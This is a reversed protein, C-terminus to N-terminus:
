IGNVINRSAGWIPHLIEEMPRTGNPQLEGFIVDPDLLTPVVSLAMWNLVVFVELVKTFFKQATTPLSAGGTVQQNQAHAQPIGFTERFLMAREEVTMQWTKETVGRKELSLHPLLPTLLVTLLLLAAIAKQKLVSRHSTQTLPVTNWTNYRM